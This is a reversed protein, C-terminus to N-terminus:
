VELSVENACVFHLNAPVTRRKQTKTHQRPSSCRVIVYNRWVTNCTNATGLEPHYKNDVLITLGLIRERSRETLNPQDHLM